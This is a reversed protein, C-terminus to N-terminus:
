SQATTDASWSSKKIKQGHIAESVLKDLQQYIHNYMQM